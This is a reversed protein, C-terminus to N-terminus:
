HAPLLLFEDNQKSIASHCLNVRKITDIHDFRFLDIYSFIKTSSDRDLMSKRVLNTIAYLQEVKSSIHNYNCPSNSLCHKNVTPKYMHPRQNVM